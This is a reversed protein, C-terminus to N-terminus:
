RNTYCMLQVKFKFINLYTTERHTVPILKGIDVTLFRPTPPCFGQITHSFLLLDSLSHPATRFKYFITAHQKHLTVGLPICHPALSHWLPLAPVASASRQTCCSHPLRTLISLPSALYAPYFPFSILSSFFSTFPSLFHASAALLFHISIM